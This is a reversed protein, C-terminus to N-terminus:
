YSKGISLTLSWTRGRSSINCTAGMGYGYIGSDIIYPWNSEYYNFTNGSPYKNDTAGTYQHNDIRGGEEHIRVYRNSVYESGDEINWGGSCQTISIANDIRDYYLTGYALVGYTQDTQDDSISGLKEIKYGKNSIFNMNSLSAQDNIKDNKVNKSKDNELLKKEEFQKSIEKETTKYFYTTSFTKKEKGTGDKEDKILQTVSLLDNTSVKENSDKDTVEINANFSDKKTDNNTSLAQVKIKSNELAMSYLKSIDTIPKKEYMIIHKNEGKNKNFNIGEYYTIPVALVLTFVIGLSLIKGLNGKM